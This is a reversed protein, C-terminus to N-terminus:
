IGIGSDADKGKMRLIGIESLKRRQLVPLFGCLKFFESFFEVDKRLDVVLAHVIGLVLIQMEKEFLFAFRCKCRLFVLLPKLFLLM